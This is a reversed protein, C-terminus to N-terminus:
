VWWTSGTNSTHIRPMRELESPPQGNGKKPYNLEVVACLADWPVVRNMTELFADRRTPKRHREVGPDAALALTQQKM